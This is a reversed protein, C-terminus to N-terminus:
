FKAARVIFEASEANWRVAAALSTPGQWYRRDIIDVLQHHKEKREFFRMMMRAKLIHADHQDEFRAVHIAEEFMEEMPLRFLLRVYFYGTRDKHISILDEIAM